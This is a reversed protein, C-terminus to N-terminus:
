EMVNKFTSISYCKFNRDELKLLIIMKKYPDLNKLKHRDFLTVDRLKLSDCFNKYNGILYFGYYESPKLPYRFSPPYLSDKDIKNIDREYKSKETEYLENKLYFYTNNSNKITNDTVANYKIYITVKVIQANLTKVGLFAFLIVLIKM